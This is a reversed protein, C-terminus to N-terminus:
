PRRRRRRCRRSTHSASTSRPRATSCRAQRHAPLLRGRRARLSRGAPRDLESRHGGRARPVGPTGLVVQTSAGTEHRSRRSSATTSSRRSTPCAAASACSSTRRSSTAISSTARRASREARRVGARPDARRAREAAPRAQAVLNELDIGGGLYEMAYYFSATPSRGYDYVAVTNPHTLQSMHQVEREFRSSTTAASAIPCCLKVATPRRLLVHHALYVAGMGGEGIKSTSRTSASSSRPARGQPAPRLDIELRVDVARDRVVCFLLVRRHLGGAPVDQAYQIRSRSARRAGDARVHDLERDRHAHRQEARDARARVGHVHTYVVSLYGSARLDHQLYASAGFATGIGLSYVLDLRHLAAMSLPKRVLLVRWIFAMAALASRRSCTSGRRAARARQGRRDLLARRPVRDARVLELVDAQVAVHHAVAPVRASGRRERRREVHRPWRALAAGRECAASERELGISASTSPSRPRRRARHHRRRRPSSSAGGRPRARKTGTTSRGWRACRSGRADNASAPRGSPQKALCQM